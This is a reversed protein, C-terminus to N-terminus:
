NLVAASCRLIILFLLAMHPLVANIIDLSLLAMYPLRASSIYGVRFSLWIDSTPCLFQPEQEMLHGQFWCFYDMLYWLNRGDGKRAWLQWVNKYMVHLAEM